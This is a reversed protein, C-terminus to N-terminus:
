KLLMKVAPSGLLWQARKQFEGIKMVRERLFAADSDRAPGNQRVGRLIDDTREILRSATEMREGIAALLVRRIVRGFDDTAEYYDKRDGKVWVRRLATWQELQRVLMSASGKSIGLTKRIDDLSQPARSFYVHMFIQGLIRGFGLTQTAHGAAEIFERRIREIDRSPM